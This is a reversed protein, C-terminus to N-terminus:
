DLRLLSILDPQIIADISEGPMFGSVRLYDGELIIRPGGDEAKEVTLTVFRSRIMPTGVTVSEKEESM